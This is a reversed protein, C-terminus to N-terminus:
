NPSLRFYLFFLGPIAWKFFVLESFCFNERSRAVSRRRRRRSLNLLSCFQQNKFVKEFGIKESKM